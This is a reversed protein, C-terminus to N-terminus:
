SYFPGNNEFYDGDNWFTAKTGDWTLYIAENPRSSVGFAAAFLHVTKDLAYAREAFTCMMMNRSAHFKESRVSTGDHKVAIYCPWERSMTYAVNEVKGILHYKDDGYGFVPLFSNFIYVIYISM